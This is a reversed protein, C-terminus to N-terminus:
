GFILGSFIAVPDAPVRTWPVPPLKWCSGAAMERIADKGCAYKVSMVCFSVSSVPPATTLSLNSIM